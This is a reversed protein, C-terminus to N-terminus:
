YVERCLVCNLTGFIQKGITRYVKFRRCSSLREVLSVVAANINDGVYM